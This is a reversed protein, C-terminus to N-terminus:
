SEVGQNFISVYQLYCQSICKGSNSIYCKISIEISTQEYPDLKRVILMPEPLVM